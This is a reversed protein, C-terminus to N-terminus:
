IFPRPQVRMATMPNPQLIERRIKGCEKNYKNLEHGSAKPSFWPVDPMAYLLSKALSILADEWTTWPMALFGAPLATATSLPKQAITLEIDSESPWAPISIATRSFNYFPSYNGGRKFIPVTVLEAGTDFEFDVVSETDSDENAPVTAPFKKRWCNTHKCLSIAAELISKEAVVEPCGPVYPIIRGTFSDM